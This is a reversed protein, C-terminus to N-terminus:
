APILLNTVASAGSVTLDRTLGDNGDVHYTTVGSLNTLKAFVKALM